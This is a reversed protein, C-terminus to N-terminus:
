RKSAARRSAAKTPEPSKPRPAFEISAVLAADADGLREALDTEVTFAFVAYQGAGDSVLYYHWQIPLDSVRGEAVIRYIHCGTSTTSESAEVFREFSEGLSRELDHQFTALSPEKGPEADALSSVNCQAVLEGRNLYRLALMEGADTMLHWDRSHFIRFKKTPSTCELALFEPGFESPLGALAKESLEDCEESPALALQLKAVVDLGTNVHGIARKEKVLLGLGTVRRENFDFRFKAKVEIETAVGGVAGLVHGALELRARDASVDKLVSEVNNQSVADLGLLAAVLDDSHSWHDGIRVADAPLLRDLLLSNAPLDVLDLEERALPGNASFLRVRGEAEDAVILGRSDRLRPEIGGDDIKIAAEANLYRRAARARGGTALHDTLLKEDYVVKGAVNMKLSRQKGEEILKVDGGVELQVEVRVVSGLRPQPQLNFTRDDGQSNAVFLATAICCALVASIRRRPM